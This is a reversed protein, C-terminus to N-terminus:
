YIGSMVWEGSVRAAGKNENEAGKITIRRWVRVRIGKISL